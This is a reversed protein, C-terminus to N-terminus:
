NLFNYRPNLSAYGALCLAAPRLYQEIRRRGTLWRKSGAQWRLQPQDIVEQAAPSVRGRLARRVPLRGPRNRGIAIARGQRAKKGRCRAVPVARAAKPVVRRVPRHAKRGGRHVNSRCQGGKDLCTAANGWRTERAQRMLRVPQAWYSLAQSYWAASRM